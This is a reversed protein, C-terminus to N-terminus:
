HIDQLNIIKESWTYSRGFSGQSGTGSKIYKAETIIRFELQCM